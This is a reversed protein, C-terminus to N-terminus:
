EKLLDLLYNGDFSHVLEVVTGINVKRNKCQSQLSCQIWVGKSELLGSATPNTVNFGDSEVMDLFDRKSGGSMQFGWNVWGYKNSPKQRFSVSQWTRGQDFSLEIKELEGEGTWTIGNIVHTGQKLISQDIPQKITSNVNMTTVPFSRFKNVEDPYYVYDITQFPGQFSGNIFVIKKLWKVSAM